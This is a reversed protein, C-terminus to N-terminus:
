PNQPEMATSPHSRKRVTGAKTLSAEYAKAEARLAVLAEGSVHMKIDSDEFCGISHREGKANTGSVEFHKHWEGDAGRYSSGKDPYGVFSVEVIQTKSFGPTGDFVIKEGVKVENARKKRKANLWLQAAKGRKTLTVGAGACKFCTTGYMQCYSYQGGGGCRSCTENEFLLKRM